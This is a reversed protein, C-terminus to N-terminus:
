KGGLAIEVRRIAATLSEELVTAKKMRAYAAARNAENCLNIVAARLLRKKRIKDGYTKVAAAPACSSCYDKGKVSRWGLDSALEGRFRNLYFPPKDYTAIAPCNECKITIFTSM